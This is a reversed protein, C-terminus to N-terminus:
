LAMAAPGPRTQFFRAAERHEPFRESYTSSWEGLVSEVSDERVLAWVSGGFGAGFASAALAGSQVALEALAETEAIQNGLLRVGEGQSRNAAQRIGGHRRNDAGCGSGPCDRRERHLFTPLSPGSGRVPVSPGPRRGARQSDARIAAAVGSWPPWTPTTTDPRRTGRRTVEAALASARNYSERAGGTKDAIVGSSAIAFAYGAPM